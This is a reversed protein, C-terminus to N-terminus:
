FHEIKSEAIEDIFRANLYFRGDKFHLKEQLLKKVERSRDYDSFVEAFFRM